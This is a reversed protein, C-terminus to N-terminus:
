SAPDPGRRGDDVIAQYVLARLKAHDDVARAPILQTLYVVVLEERPDVWYVSHYAGGWGYEGVSGPVGRAGLDKVVSFGLGFGEGPRGYLDGIHDATMLEVTKRSLIRVGDLEGGNLLMQLFRAYDRATSVLGAGGSFSKRPGDVYAGQGVMGGPDPARELGGGETASYVVALRERKAPPLYFHTDRMKLPEFIRTRLFEDLPLGSVREVLVGLIDTSYGYVFREGPQADFPLAAMRKVTEAIPEDRDAFYWGQIGAEAWRDRAIGGGYGIGATHTLLDRITIPRKAPVVDYGGGERPVAVTTNRFEPLYKGVPDTILLAGEEQLMMVAVSVIAKTQSAIRFIADTTMPAGAERDRYGFAEFYAVKGKRAILIVGGALREEEVYRRFTATLRELRAGSLGVEEPTARPLDQALAPHVLLLLLFLFLLSARRNQRM